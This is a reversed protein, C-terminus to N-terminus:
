GIKILDNETVRRFSFRYGEYVAIAYFVLDMPNFTARMLNAIIEGYHKKLLEFFPLNQESSIMGVVAFLNGAACGLLSWAAGVIGFSRDLGKGFIKVAFGVLYGVGVAMFGIQYGTLITVVAWVAAGLLAAAGGAIVALVLNQESQLRQLAAQLILPDVNGQAPVGDPTQPEDAM